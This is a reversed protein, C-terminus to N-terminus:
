ETDRPPRPARAPRVPQTPRITQRAAREEETWRPPHPRPAHPRYWPRQPVEGQTAPVPTAGPETASPRAMGGAEVAEYRCRCGSGHTCGVVPITPADSIAYVGGAAVCAPCADRAPSLAVQPAGAARLRSLGEWALARLTEDRGLRRAGAPDLEPLAHAVARAIADLKAGREIRRAIVRGLLDRQAPSLLADREGAHQRAYSAADGSEPDSM